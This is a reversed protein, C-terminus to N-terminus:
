EQNLLEKVCKVAHAGNYSYASAGIEEAFNKSVPAGGIITKIKDELNENRLLNVVEKMVPMTTTLLASMGIVPAEHKKATEIFKEPSVDSGLDIVEFGAGKLMIGVLNKGIDHLDGRVTGLVVKGKSPIDALILLPKLLDMGAQMAKAAMLVEPLFIEHNKFKEGITNMGRFLGDDLIKKATIKQEIAMRTLEAVKEDDGKDIYLSIQDIIDM